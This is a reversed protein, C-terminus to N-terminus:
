GVRCLTVGLKLPGLFCLGGTPWLLASLIQQIATIVVICKDAGNIAKELASQQKKNTTSKKFIGETVHTIYM